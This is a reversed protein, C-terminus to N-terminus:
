RGTLKYLILTTREDDDFADYSAVKELKYPALAEANDPATQNWELYWGPHYSEIKKAMDETGYADNISPIRTMLSIQSGSVGLLLAKQDPHSRVIESIGDAAARMDYDRHTLFHGILAVNAVVGGALAVMLVIAVTRAHLSLEAFTLAVIWVMPALMALFYRPAYDDQRSFVFVAQAGLALWGAAFLPNAWLKRKWVFALILIVLVTPYLTQDVWFCNRALDALTGLTHHWDIDPMANVDFFYRYDVGYGLRAVLAAYSKVLGAPVLAVAILARVLGGRTRGMASWAVWGVAPILLVATTKTLMMVSTLLALAAVRWIGKNSLSSAALLVLCFEFIILTDLIAIRSFAFAFPSAAMLLAVMLAAAESRAFRRVLLFLAGVTAISIAVNLARAAVVSVGTFHFLAGVLSPWVPLAVSPNYDGAVYWHGTLFHNVAGSAWWGEDTFKAQDPLWPSENPFDASLFFFRAACLVFIFPWIAMRLWRQTASANPDFREGFHKWRSNVPTMWELSVQSLM